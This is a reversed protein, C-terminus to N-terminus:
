FGHIGFRSLNYTISFNKKGDVKGILKRLRAFQDISIEGTVSLSFYVM